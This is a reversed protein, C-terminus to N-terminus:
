PPPFHPWAKASARRWNRTLRECAAPRQSSSTPSADRACCRAASSDPPSCCRTAMARARTLSGATRSASSGVPSKSSCFAMAIISKISRKCRVCWSVEIRAVCLGTRAFRQSRMRRNSCPTSRGSAANWCAGESASLSFLASGHKFAIRLFGPAHDKERPVLGALVAARVDLGLMQQEAQHALVLRQRVAKQARVARDLGDALLDFRADGNALADGRGHFHRQALLALADQIEGGLFGLAEPVLVDPVSCRSSPM